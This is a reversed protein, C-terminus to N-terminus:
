FMEFRIIIILNKRVGLNFRSAYNVLESEWSNGGGVKLTNQFNFTRIEEEWQNLLAGYAM